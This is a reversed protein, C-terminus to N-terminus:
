EASPLSRKHTHAHMDISSQSRNNGTGVALLQQMQHDKRCSLRLTHSSSNSSKSSNSCHERVQQKNILSLSSRRSQWCRQEATCNVAEAATCARSRVAAQHQNLYHTATSSASAV